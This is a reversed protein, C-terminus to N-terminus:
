HLTQLLIFIVKVYIFDIDTYLRLISYKDISFKAVIDHHSTMIYLLTMYLKAM